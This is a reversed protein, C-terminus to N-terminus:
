LVLSKQVDHKLDMGLFGCTAKDMTSRILAVTRLMPRTIGVQYGPMDLGQLAM